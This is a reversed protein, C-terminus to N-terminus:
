RPRATEYAIRIAEQSLTSSYKYLRVRKNLQKLLEITRYMLDPKLPQHTQQLLIPFAKGINIEEIATKKEARELFFIARLPVMTNTNWGEKGCWPTGCTYVVDGSFRLLPKDGNIVFSGPYLDCWMKARTSKGVGSPAVFLYAYGDMAVAAGHILLTDFAIVADALKKLVVFPELFGFDYTVGVRDSEVVINPTYLDPHCRKEEDIEQQSITILLDPQDFSKLYNKFSYFGNGYICDIETDISAFNCKLVKIINDCRKVEKARNM